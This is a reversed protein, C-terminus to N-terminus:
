NKVNHNYRLRELSRNISVSTPHSESCEQDELIIKAKRYLLLAKEHDKLREHCWGLDSLTIAFAAKDGNELIRIAEEFCRKAEITNQQLHLRILGMSNWAEAVKEHSKGYDAIFRRLDTVVKKLLVDKPQDM